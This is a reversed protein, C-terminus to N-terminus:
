DRINIDFCEQSPAEYYNNNNSKNAALQKEVKQVYDSRDDKGM